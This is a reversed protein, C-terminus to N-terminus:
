ETAARVRSLDATVAAAWVWILIGGALLYRFDGLGFALGSSLLYVVPVVWSVVAAATRHQWRYRRAFIVCAAILAIGIVAPAVGHLIGHWSLTEPAGAPTGAPYGFAPDTVFVGGWVLGVGYCGFLIPLWTRGPGTRVTRRIGVASATVLLGAVVFNAIQLWGGEGTSLQSLANVKPDFGPRTLEQAVVVLSFLPGGVAGCYLLSRTTPSPRASPTTM